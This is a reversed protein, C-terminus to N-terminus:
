NRTLSVLDRSVLADPRAYRARRKPTYGLARVRDFVQELLSVEGNETKAVPFVLMMGALRENAWAVLFDVYLPALEKLWTEGEKSTLPKRLAPGLFPEGVIFLQENEELGQQSAIHSQLQALTKSNTADAQWVRLEPQYSVDQDTLWALNKISAEVKAPVIDSGFVSYGMAQGELLIRGNGCFPDYVVANQTDGVALNIMAQALKPPLMGSAADPAPIGFDRRSYEEVNQISITVALFGDIQSVNLAPHLPDFRLLDLRKHWITADNSIELFRLNGGESRLQKKLAIGQRETLGGVSWKPAEEVIGQMINHVTPLFGQKSIPKVMWRIERTGGLRRQMTILIDRLDQQQPSLFGSIGESEWSLTDTSKLGLVGPRIMFTSWPFPLITAIALIEQRSLDPNSGLIFVLQM